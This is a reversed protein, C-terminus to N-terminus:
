RLGAGRASRPVRRMRRRRGDISAVTSNWLPYAPADTLIAWIAEPTAHILTTVSFREV